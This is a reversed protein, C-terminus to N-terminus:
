RINKTRKIIEICARTNHYPCKWIGVKDKTDMTHYDEYVGWYWEGSQKDLLHQQIFQWNHFCLALFRENGTLQWANLFGVVAEAQPWWHKEKIWHKEGPEYEYWLGGDRDLGEIAVEAMNVSARKVEDLLENLGAIEVSEQLLWAAEIDHGYSITQSRPTWREDFFLILHHTSTDIIHDLFYRSLAAIRQKLEAGPYIHYLNAFAELLHLHTNMSKKENADKESLRQDAVPQWNRAFAEMYGGHITDYSYTVIDAYLRIAEDMAQQDKCAMYYESLGYIAFALAYVQKKTDLPQGDFRVTWYVGGYERDIFHDAIYHFARSAIGLYEPKGTLRYASSFAYLIRSNLVSGKCAGSRMENSHSVSGAFGGYQEDITHKMWFGLISELETAAERSLRQLDYKM